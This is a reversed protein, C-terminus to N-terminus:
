WRFSTRSSIKIPRLFGNKEALDSGAFRPDFPLCAVVIGGLVVVKASSFGELLLDLLKV